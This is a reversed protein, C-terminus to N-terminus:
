EIHKQLQALLASVTSVHPPLPVKDRMCQLIDILRVRHNDDNQYGKLKHNQLSARLTLIENILRHTRDTDDYNLVNLEHVKRLMTLLPGVPGKEEELYKAHVACYSALASIAESLGSIPLIYHDDDSM